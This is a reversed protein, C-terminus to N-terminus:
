FLGRSRDGWDPTTPQHSTVAVTGRFRLRVRQPVCQFNTQARTPQLEVRKLRFDDIALIAIPRTLERHLAEVEHPMGKSRPVGLVPLARQEDAETRRDAGLRYPM